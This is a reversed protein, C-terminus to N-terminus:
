RATIPSWPAHTEYDGAEYHRRVEPSMRCLNRYECGGYNGCATVNKPFKGAVYSERARHITEDADERWEELQAKTRTVFGRGFRTYNTGIEAGDVIGAKIPTRLIMQGAWTYGSFQNDPTFGDFFRKDIPHGSTKQDMWHLNGGYEVVRDLHGCYLIDDSFELVFSLEVAPKGDQLHYTTPAGRLEDGFEDIYWIISRVLSMRNKKADDFNYPQGTGPIKNGNEDREHTWSNILAERVIKKLATDTDDGQARYKYFDELAKAYLGGFVLHVSKRKPVLNKVMRYFYKRPCTQFLTLSTADWAFQGGVNFSPNETM